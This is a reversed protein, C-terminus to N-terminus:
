NQFTFFNEGFFHGDGDVSLINYTGEGMEELFFGCVTSSMLNRKRESIKKRPLHVPIREINGCIDLYYHTREVSCDKSPKRIRKKFHCAFGLSKALFDINQALAESATEITYLTDKYLHGDTDLLGALVHLRVEPEGFLYLDPVFKNQCRVKWIGIRRLAEILNNQQGRKGCLKYQSFDPSESNSFENVHLDFKEAQKNIEDLIESDRHAIAMDVSSICSGDGLLLGLFYPDIDLKNKTSGVFEIAGKPLLIKHLHKFGKSKGVYEGVTISVNKREEGKKTPTTVLSLIQKEGMIFPEGRNPSIKYLKGTERSKTIVARSTGDQGLVKDGVVIKKAERPVGNAMIVLREGSPSSHSARDNEAPAKTDQELEINSM